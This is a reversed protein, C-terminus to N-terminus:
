KIKGKERTAPGIYPLKKYHSKLYEIDSKKDPYNITKVWLIQNWTINPPNIYKTPLKDGYYFPGDLVVERGDPTGYINVIVDNGDIYSQVLLFSSTNNRFILDKVGPFITADLGDGYQTYYHVYLSHNYQQIIDLGSKLAARYVTSSVQCLGGGPVKKLNGGSFIALADKWGRSLTVPGGLLSNYSFSVDSPILINNFHDNAAKRINFDRGYPSGKFNSYGSDLLVLDGLDINSRNIIKGKKYDLELNVIISDSRKLNLLNNATKEINLEYGDIALGDVNIYSPKTIDLDNGIEIIYANSHSNSIVNNLDSAIYKLILDRSLYVKIDNGVYKWKVWDVKNLPVDISDFDFKHKAIDPLVFSIVSNHYKKIEELALRAKSTTISANNIKYIIEISDDFNFNSINSFINDLLSSFNIESANRSKVITFQGDEQPLIVANKPLYTLKFNYLFVKLMHDKNYDYVPSFKYDNFLSDFSVIIRDIFNNNKYYRHLTLENNIKVGLRKIKISSTKDNYNFQLSKSNILDQNIDLIEEFENYNVWNYNIDNVTIQRIEGFSLFGIFCCLFVFLLSIFLSSFISELKTAQSKRKM